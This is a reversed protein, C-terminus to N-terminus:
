APGCGYHAACCHDGVPDVSSAVPAFVAAVVASVAAVVPPVAAVVPSAEPASEIQLGGLDRV